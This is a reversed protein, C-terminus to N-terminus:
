DIWNIEIEEDFFQFQKLNQKQQYNTEAPIEMLIEQYNVKRKQKNKQTLSQSLSPKTYDKFLNEELFNLTKQKLYGKLVALSAFRIYNHKQEELIANIQEPTLLKAKELYIGILERHQQIKILPFDVAFFDITEQHIWGRLALIEGILLNRNHVQDRLAIDIQYSSILGAEELIKGLPKGLSTQYLQTIM